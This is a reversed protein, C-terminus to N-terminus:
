QSKPTKLNQNNEQTIKVLQLDLDAILALIEPSIPTYAQM